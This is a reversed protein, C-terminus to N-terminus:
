ALLQGLFDDGLDIEARDGIIVPVQLLLGSEEASGRGMPRAGPAVVVGPPIFLNRGRPAGYVVKRRFDYIRSRGTLICGPMLVAGEGVSVGDYLGCNPGIVAHDCVISPLAELPEIVGGIHSGCGIRVSAGIQTCAGITVHSDVSTNPGIRAGINVISPPMCVVGPALYTGDRITSGGAPVRVQEEATFRRPPLTDLDFNLREGLRSCDVLTGFRGHLLIAKKVWVEALWNGDVETAARAGGSNLLARFERLLELAAESKFSDPNGYLGEIAACLGETESAAM